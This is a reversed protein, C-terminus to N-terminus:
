RLSDRLGRGTCGGNSASQQRKGGENRRIDAKQNENPACTHENSIQSAGPTGLSHCSGAKHLVVRTCKLDFLDVGVAHEGGSEWYIYIGM